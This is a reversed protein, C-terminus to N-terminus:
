GPAPFRRQDNVDLELELATDPAFTGAKGQSKQVLHLYEEEIVHVLWEQSAFAEAGLAAGDDLSMGRYGAPMDARILVQLLSTDYGVGELAQLAIGIMAEEAPSFGNLEVAM